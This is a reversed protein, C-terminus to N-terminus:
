LGNTNAPVSRPKVVVTEKTPEIPLMSPPVGALIKAALRGSQAGWAGYDDGICGTAGQEMLRPETVFVPVGSAFATKSVASFGTTILNDASVLLAAAGRQILSQVAMPLDSVSSIGAEFLRMGKTACAARLKEVSIVANMQSPDYVTGVAKLAPNNEIAMDLLLGVPPDDHVGCVNAPRGNTFLNLKAPDSAVTFVLPCTKIKGVAAMLAPTTVTVVLDPDDAMASDIIQPLASMDGQANYKKIVYDKGGRLGCAQLGAEFGAVAQDLSQNEVLNILAVRAPKKVDRTPTPAASATPNEVSERGDSQRRELDSLLLIGSAIAILIVAIRLQWLNKLM